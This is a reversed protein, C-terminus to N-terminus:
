IGWEVSDPVDQGGVIRKIGKAVFADLHQQEVKRNCGPANIEGASLRCFQREVIRTLGNSKELM